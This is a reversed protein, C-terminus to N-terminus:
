PLTGVASATRGRELMSRIEHPLPSVGNYDSLRLDADINRVSKLAIEGKPSVHYVSVVRGRPELVIMMQGHDETSAAFAILEQGASLNGGAGTSRQAFAATTQPWVGAALATVILAALAGCVARRM